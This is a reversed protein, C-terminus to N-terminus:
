KLRKRVDALLQDEGAKERATLYARYSEAAGSSQNLAERARGQFYYVMPFYGYTPEEDLFLALAEGRRKICKDFESNAQLPQGALLYARGLDFHGIWTGAMNDKDAGVLDNADSLLKIAPKPDKSKMVMLAEIIKAYAQPEPQAEKALGQMLSTAKASQGAEVFIRAALFRIKVEHGNALAKDASAVAAGNQGHLLHAYAQEAYKAAARDALKLALDGAAGQELIHVAETYRGEYVALDGLGSASFSAAIPRFQPKGDADVKTLGSFTEIAQAIQGQGAQNQALAFQAFTDTPGLDAATRAQEEGTVFDGGYNSYIALNDRFFGRKQIIKVVERMEDQARTLDRLQSACLALQNRGIVDAAYRKILEAHEAVCQKYDGTLRFFMGRTTYTERETMGELHKLAENIYNKADDPRGMNNSVGALALYGVGFNKDADIAKLLNQKADEFQSNTTAEQAAAYYRVADISSASLSMAAFFKDDNATRDGLKKRVSAVLKTATPIVQDQGSAKANLDSLVEEKPLVQTAKLSVNYVNGQKEIGGSLVVGLGQKVAIDRAAADDLKQPLAAGVTRRIGVRDYATIFGAGELARRLMPELTRDFAPDGTRNDFDAIVVSVPEHPKEPGTNRLFFWWASGALAVVLTVIGAMMPLSVSRKVPLPVGNEDLRALDEELEKTTQYRKEPDLEIARAIIAALADPVDANFVKLPAMPKEMRARLREIANGPLESRRVGSLLDYLILGTTYIDARQDIPKALAQEPAMYEVTGVISGLVTAETYKSPGTGTGPSTGTGAAQLSDPFAGVSKSAEAPAGTSRAIGFDMILAEGDKDVMINAPKLDRHVVGATHAAVLGSVVARMIRLTQQVSLKGEKKLISSLDTGDVYSMTIYKIGRIEGLDHIRVVNKHTVQRALLLERKFRKEIEQEAVPDKLVEPRIVKLAVVVDLESDWAQYVAGMGGIGLMRVITYRGFSEGMTLPGTSSESTASSATRAPASGAPAPKSTAPTLVTAADGGSFRTPADGSQLVTADSQLVTADSQLVTADSQLVTADAPPVAKVPQLVTADSSLITANDGSPSTPPPGTTTTPDDRDPPLNVLCRNYQAETNTTSRDTV